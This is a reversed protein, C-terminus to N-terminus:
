GLTFDPLGVHLRFQLDLCPARLLLLTLTVFHWCIVVVVFHVCCAVFLTVVFLLLTHYCGIRPFLTPVPPTRLLCLCWM